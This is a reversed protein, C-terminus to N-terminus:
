DSWRCNTIKVNIMREGLMQQVLTKKICMRYYEYFDNDQESTVLREECSKCIKRGYIMIGNKLPKGCIICSQKKM